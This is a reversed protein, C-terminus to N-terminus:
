TRLSNNAMYLGRWYESDIPRVAYEGLHLGCPKSTELNRNLVNAVNIMAEHVNKNFVMLNYSVTLLLVNAGTQTKLYRALNKAGVKPQVNHLDTKM